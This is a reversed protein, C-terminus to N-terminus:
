SFFYQGLRIITAGEAVATNWDNTMGMSLEALNHHLQLQKMARFDKKTQELPQQATITMLGNVSINALQQVASMVATLENPLFGYKRADHSINIQLFVKQQHHQTYAARNIAQLLRISDVSEIVDFLRVALAAKNSQLHGIFHQEITSPWVDARACAEQMRSEGILDLQHRQLVALVQETSQHKVVAMVRVNEFINYSM